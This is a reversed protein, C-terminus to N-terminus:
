IRSMLYVAGAFCCLAISLGAAAYVVFEPWSLRHIVASNVSANVQVPKKLIVKADVNIEDRVLAIAKHVDKLTIDTAKGGFKGDPRREQVMNKGRSIRM